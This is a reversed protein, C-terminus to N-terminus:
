RALRLAKLLDREAQSRPTVAPEALTAAPAPAPAAHGALPRASRVLADLRDALAEARETLFRLDERLPEAAAIREAVGKGAGEATARLRLMAAEAARTAESMGAAGAELAGRDRRLAALQRELRIAFPIAVGLMLLLVAQAAWEFLSM